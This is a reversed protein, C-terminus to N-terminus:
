RYRQTKYGIDPNLTITFKPKRKEEFKLTGEFRNIIAKIDLYTNRNPPYVIQVNASRSANGNKCVTNAVDLMIFYKNESIVEETAM